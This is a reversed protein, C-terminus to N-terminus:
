DATAPSSCERPLKSIVELFTFIAQRVMGLHKRSQLVMVTLTLLILARGKRVNITAMTAQSEPLKSDSAYLLTNRDNARHSVFKKIDDSSSKEALRALADSFLREEPIGPRAHIFDLPEIPQVGAKDGGEVGLNSLPILIDARRKEINFTLNFERLMPELTSGIAIVCAMVGAKHVHDRPNFKKANEYGRLQIAKMLATAAEEEGTIARFSAMERDIEFIKGSREFHELANQFRHRVSGPLNPQIKKLANEVFEFSQDAM